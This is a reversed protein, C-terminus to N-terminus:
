RTASQADAKAKLEAIRKRADELHESVEFEELLKEYYPLAEAQRNVRTLSEALFFYAGDRGTYEPDQKLLVSLRDIAGPYWRQRFYFVGVEYDAESLRDRAERLKSKVESSLESNPYRVVFTELERITDRTESQDRQAARMQRFHAM